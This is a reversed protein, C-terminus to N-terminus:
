VPELDPDDLARKEPAEGSLDIAKELWSIAATLEGLLYCACALDYLVVEEQPFQDM